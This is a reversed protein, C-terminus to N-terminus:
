GWPFLGRYGSYLLSPPGWLRDPRLPELFFGRGRDPISGRGDLGYDSVTSVPSIPEHEWLPLRVNSVWGGNFLFLVSTIGQLSMFHESLNKEHRKGISDFHICLYVASVQRMMSPIVWVWHKWFKPLSFLFNILSGWAACPNVRPFCSRQQFTVDPVLMQLECGDPHLM